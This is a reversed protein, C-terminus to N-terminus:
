GINKIDRLYVIVLADLEGDEKLKSLFSKLATKNSWPNIFM